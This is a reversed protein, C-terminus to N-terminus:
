AAKKMAIHPIGADDFEPGHSRYGAKEYFGRARVQADLTLKTAGRQRAEAELFALLARGVGRGRVDDIVAMRQIKAVGPELFIFRGAGCLVGDLSAIAHVADKEDRGDLEDSPRVGQEEVFVTWRLRLAAKLDAPTEALRVEIM